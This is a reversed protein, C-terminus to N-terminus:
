ADALALIRKVAGSTIEHTKILAEVIPRGDFPGAGESTLKCSITISGGAVSSTPTGEGIFLRGKEPEFKAVVEDLGDFRIGSFVTDGIKVIIGSNIRHKTRAATFLSTLYFCGSQGDPTYPQLDTIIKAFESGFMQFTESQLKGSLDKASNGRPFYVKDSDEHGLNKWLAWCAQDLAHRLHLIAETLPRELDVSNSPLRAYHSLNGTMISRATFRELPRNTLCDREHAELVAISERAWNLLRNASYEVM